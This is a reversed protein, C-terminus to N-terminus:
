LLKWTPLGLLPVSESGQEVRVVGGCVLGLRDWHVQFRLADDRFPM